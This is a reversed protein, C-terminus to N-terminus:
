FGFEDLSDVPEYGAARLWADLQGAFREGVATDGAERYHRELKVYRRRVSAMVHGRSAGARLMRSAHWVLHRVARNGAPTFMAYDRAIHNPWSHRELPHGLAFQAGGWLAIASAILAVTRM